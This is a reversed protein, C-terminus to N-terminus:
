CAGPRVVVSQGALRTFVLYNCVFTWARPLIEIDMVRSKRVLSFRLYVWYVILLYFEVM